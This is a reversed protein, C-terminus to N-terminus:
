VPEPGEIEIRTEGGARLIPTFGGFILRKLDFPAGAEPQMRPDALAKRNGADRAERSPWVVWSFVVTEGDRAKVARYFDTQEGHPVDDGWCEIIQLAGQELFVPAARAAAERYAAKRDAAVPIVLGDIYTM